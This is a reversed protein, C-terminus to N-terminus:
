IKGNKLDEDFQRCAEINPKGNQWLWGYKPHYLDPPLVISTTRWMIKVVENMDDLIQDLTKLIQDPTKQAWTKENM